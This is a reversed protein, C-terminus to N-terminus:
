KISAANKALGNKGMKVLVSCKLKLADENLPDHIFLANAMDIYTADSFLIEKQRILNMFLDVLKDSFDSKFADAWDIQMNPLLKGESVISLLKQIDHINIEKSENIKRILILTEYYDCYIDNGFEITWYFGQKLFRVDGVQKMIQRIKSMAIGRNNQANEETMDFWLIEKLKLFSIGKGNKITNLLVLLFLNKILPKFETTLNNGDKDMVQFGGFLFIAQKRVSQIAAIGSSNETHGDAEAITHRQITAQGMRKKKRRYFFLIFFSALLGFVSLLMITGRNNGSKVAQHLDAQLLPSYSLSYISISALSDIGISSSTVAVLKHNTKDLFLDVFSETDKFGLPITDALIEYKPETLSFKYLRIAYRM